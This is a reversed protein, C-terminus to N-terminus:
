DAFFDLGVNRIRDVEAHTDLESDGQRRDLEEQWHTLREGFLDGFDVEPQTDVETTVRDRLWYKGRGLFVFVTSQRELLAQINRESTRQDSPLLVNAREAIVSYHAPKGIQRLALVVEDLKRKGWKTLGCLGSEDIEIRLHTKLCAAVFADDLEDRYSRYYRTMMFQAIVTDCPLPAYAQELVNTLREQISLVQDLPLHALGWIEAKRIWEVGDHLEFALRAVGVPDVNGIVLETRLATDLQEANLLGGAHELLHTLLANLPRIIACRHPM